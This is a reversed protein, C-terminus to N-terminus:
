SATPARRREDSLHYVQHHLGEAPEQSGGDVDSESDAQLGGGPCDPWSRASSGVHLVVFSWAVFFVFCHIEFM